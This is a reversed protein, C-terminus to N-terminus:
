IKTNKSNQGREGCRGICQGGGEFEHGGGGRHGVGSDRYSAIELIFSAV